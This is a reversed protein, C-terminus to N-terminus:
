TMILLSGSRTLSIYIFLILFYRSTRWTMFVTPHCDTAYKHIVCHIITKSQVASCGWMEYWQRALVYIVSDRLLANHSLPGFTFLLDHRCDSLVKSQWLSVCLNYDATSAFLLPIWPFENLMVLKLFDNLFWCCCFLAYLSNQINQCYSKDAIDFVIIHTTPISCFFVTCWQHVRESIWTVSTCCIQAVNTWIEAM